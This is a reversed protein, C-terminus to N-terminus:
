RRGPRARRNKLGPPGDPVSPRLPVDGKDKEAQEAEDGEEPTPGGTDLEADYEARRLADSLTDYADQVRKFGGVAQESPNKDPHLLLAMRKYSGKLELPSAARYSNLAEYHNHGVTTSAALAAEATKIKETPEGEGYPNQLLVRLQGKAYAILPYLLWLLALCVLGLVVYPLFWLLLLM